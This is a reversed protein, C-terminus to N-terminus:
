RQRTQGREHGSRRTGPSSTRWFVTGSAGCSYEGAPTASGPPPLGLEVPEHAQDPLVAVVRGTGRAASASGRHRHGCTSSTWSWRGPRALDDVGRGGSHARDAPAPPTTIFATVRRPGLGGLVDVARGRGLELVAMRQGLALAPLDGPLEGVLGEAGVVAVAAGAEGRGLGQGDGVPRRARASGARRGPRRGSRGLSRLRGRLRRGGPRATRGIRRWRTLQPGPAAALRRSLAKM